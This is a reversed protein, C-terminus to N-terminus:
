KPRAVTVTLDCGREIKLGRILIVGDEDVRIKGSQPAPTEGRRPKSSIAEWTLREGSKAQFRQLRRFAMDVTCGGRNAITVEVSEPAEEM